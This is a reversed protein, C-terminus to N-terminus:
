TGVEHVQGGLGLAADNHHDQRHFERLDAGHDRMAEVATGPLGHDAELHRAYSARRIARIASRISL